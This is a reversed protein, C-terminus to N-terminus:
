ISTRQKDRMSHQAAAARLDTVLEPCVVVCVSATKTAHHRLLQRRLLQGHPLLHLCPRQQASTHQRCSCATSDEKTLALPVQLVLRTSWCVCFVFACRAPLGSFLTTTPHLAVLPTVNRRHIRTHSAAPMIPIIFIIILRFVPM